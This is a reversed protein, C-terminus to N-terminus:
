GSGMLRLHGINKGVYLTAIYQRMVTLSLKDGKAINIEIDM